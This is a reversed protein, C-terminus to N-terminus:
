KLITVTDAMKRSGQQEWSVRVKEGTKLGPDKFSKSLAFTSGDSLALTMSKGDYAKVTGSAEHQTAAFSFTTAALITAAVTPLLTKNM